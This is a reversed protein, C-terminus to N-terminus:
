HDRFHQHRYFTYSDFLVGVVSGVMGITLIGRLVSGNGFIAFFHSVQAVGVEGIVGLHPILGLLILTLFIVGIFFVPALFSFIATLVLSRLLNPLISM